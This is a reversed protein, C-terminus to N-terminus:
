QLSKMSTERLPIYALLGREREAAVNIPTLFTVGQGKRV